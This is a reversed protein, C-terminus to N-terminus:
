VNISEKHAPCLHKNPGIEKACSACVPRDCTIPSGGLTRGVIADCRLTATGAAYQFVCFKCRPARPASGYILATGGSPLKIVHTCNM